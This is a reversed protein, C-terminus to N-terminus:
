KLKINAFLSGLSTGVDESKPIDFAEEEIETAGADNLAKMSLSIKGDKVSIIKVTVKDGEKLVAAPTKIRKESIQSVHLLGSLGNGLNIFAGYPKITEVTGETVLGTEVNSIKNKREEDAKEKLLEKASLVLKQNEADATIVQVEIEKFLWEELNEVYGLSLKSAPIFGRIGEVYAIVGANVIGSIKVTLTTGDELLQKLKEWALIDNAEKKSLLINGKGDDTRIVTASIVDGVAIDSKISFAPDSSLDEAKIIGEAYYGLDIIVETESVGIVTGTLIDGEKIKKFSAELEASYDEMREEPQIPEKTLDNEM